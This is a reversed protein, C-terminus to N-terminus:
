EPFVFDLGRTFTEIKNASHGAGEIVRTELILDTYNRKRLVDIFTEVPEKLSETEGVGIYLRVPLDKHSSAYTEDQQFALRNGYVTVPSSAVYGSFLTPETYLAFLTFTGGYSSGMLIRRSPNVRYNTEILPMVQEKIFSLFKPADGSGNVSKENVPTYDMARLTNYDANEGSYTIGVIIMEPVNGDYLLCGYIADLLKFDWQGDLLYLVPYKVKPYKEYDDPLRIYLDYDRGTADSHLQRVESRPLSVRPLPVGPQPTPTKATCAALVQTLLFGTVFLTNRILHTM